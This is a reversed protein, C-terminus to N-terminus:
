RSEEKKEIHNLILALATMIVLLSGSWLIQLLATEAEGCALILCIAIIALIVLSKTKM